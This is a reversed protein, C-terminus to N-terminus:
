NLPNHFSDAVNPAITDSGPDGATVDGLGKSIYRGGKMAAKRVNAKFNPDKFSDMDYQQLDAVIKEVDPNLSANRQLFSLATATNDSLILMFAKLAASIADESKKDLTTRGLVDMGVDYAALEKLSVYDQFSKM